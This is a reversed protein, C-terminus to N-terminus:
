AAIQNTKAGDVTAPPLPELPPLPSPHTFWVVGISLLMIPICLVSGEPGVTGGSLLPNGLAHTAFLRGQMLLGSDPVGFLFSQTWDWTTHFGIAWWLSGTRWLAVLFLMGALFVQFLGFKNEGNNGTHAFLFLASTLSAAVWFAIGRARAPSFLNGISVMGRYLTFQLYGRFSYEEVLGVLLFLLLQAAGWGLIAPGHLLRQDFSLLHLGRLLGVLLAQAALGWFTGVLFRSAGHRDGLGFVGLRRREIRAMLWSLPLLVALFIVEQPILSRLAVPKAPEPKTAAPAAAKASPAPKAPAAAHGPRAEAQSQRTEAQKQRVEMRRHALNVGFMIPILIAFFILLSWVARLGFPGFFFQRRYFAATGSAPTTAM